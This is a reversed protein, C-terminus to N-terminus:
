CSLSSMKMHSRGSILRHLTSWIRNSKELWNRSYEKIKSCHWWSTSRELRRWSIRLSTSLEQPILCSCSVRPSYSSTTNRKPKKRWSTSIWTSSRLTRTPNSSKRLLLSTVRTSTSAPLKFMRLSETSLLHYLIVLALVLM